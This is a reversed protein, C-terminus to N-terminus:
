VDEGRLYRRRYEASGDDYDSRMYEEKTLPRDALAKKYKTELNHFMIMGNPKVKILNGLSILHERWFDDKLGWSLIIRLYDLTVQHKTTLDYLAELSDTQVKYNNIATKNGFLNQIERRHNELFDTIEQSFMNEEPPPYPPTKDTEIYETEIYEPAVKDPTVGSKTRHKDPTKRSKRTYEDRYKLLKPCYITILEPKKKDTKSFFLSCKESFSLFKRFKKPSFGLFKRWNKESLQLFIQNAETMEPTIKEAIRELIFWYAGYGELGFEDIIQCLSEDRNAITLHKFWRMPKNGYKYPITIKITYSAVINVLIYILAGVFVTLLLRLM